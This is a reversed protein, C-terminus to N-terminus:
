LVGGMGEALTDWFRKAQIVQQPTGTYTIRGSNFVIVQDARRVTEVRHAIMLVTRERALEWVAHSLDAELEPDLHSTPEDMVLFPTRLLFARALAVRQAQGGSLNTGGEGILTELGAPLRGVFGAMGTLEMAAALDQDCPGICGLTLNERLTGHFLYPTQSVWSVRRHWEALDFRDLHTNGVSISGQQPRIYRMLLRATTTKGSGSSGVLANLSRPALTFSLNEVAPKERGPYTYTVDDFRIEAPGTPSAPYGVWRTDPIPTEEPTELLRYIKQSTAIGDMAAHFRLGLNRLPLYFDPAILLIFFAQEFLMKGYLLRLGIEVAIVAMSITGVLELVLASLFTLRMVAMTGERYNEGAQRIRDRQSKSQNFSKLTILGQLTDLFQVSMRSLATWRKRTMRDATSGILAMFLPILPATVLLVLGTLLDLPFVVALTLVPLLAALALQPIFLRFYADIAEVGDVMLASLEGAQRDALGAANVSLLKGALRRRLDSKVRIALKAASADGALIFLAKAIIVALLLVMDPRVQELTFGSLYVRSLVRSILFAQALAAVGGALGSALTIALMKPAVKLERFLRREIMM